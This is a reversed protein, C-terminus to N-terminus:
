GHASSEAEAMEEALMKKLRKKYLSRKLPSLRDIFLTGELHDVEHQIVRAFFDEAEFDVTAGDPRFGRVKVKRFRQVKASYDLVSLCGETGYQSGEAEYIEPNILAMAEKVVKGPHEEDEDEPERTTNIVIIQESIGVQPAALGAGPADFMTEIMSEVIARLRDDFATVPLAKQRLIPNPHTLIPYIM